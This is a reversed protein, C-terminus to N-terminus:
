ERPQEGQQDPAAVDVGSAMRLLPAVQTRLSLQSFLPLRKKLLAAPHEWTNSGKPTAIEDWCSLVVVLPPKLLQANSGQKVFLLAQLLEVLGAQTSLTVRPPLLVELFEYGRNCGIEEPDVCTELTCRKDTAM